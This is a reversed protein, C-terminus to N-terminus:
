SGYTIVKLRVSFFTQQLKQHLTRQEITHPCSLTGNEVASCFLMYEASIRQGCMHEFGSNERYVLITVKFPCLMGTSGLLARLGAEKVSRCRKESVTEQRVGTSRLM